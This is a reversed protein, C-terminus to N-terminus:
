YIATVSIDEPETGGPLVYSRTITWTNPDVVSVIGTSPRVVYLKGQAYRLRADSGVEVRDTALNWPPNVDMSQLWGTHNSSSYENWAIAPKPSVNTAASLTAPLIFVILSLFCIRGLPCSLV